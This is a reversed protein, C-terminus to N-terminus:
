DQVNPPDATKSLAHCVNFVRRRMELWETFIDSCNLTDNVWSIGDSISKRRVVALSGAPQGDNQCFLVVLVSYLLRISM